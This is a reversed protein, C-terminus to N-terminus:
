LQKAKFLKEYYTPNKKGDTQQKSLKAAVTLLFLYM